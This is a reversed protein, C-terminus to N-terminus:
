VNNLIDGHLDVKKEFPLDLKKLFEGTGSFTLNQFNDGSLAVPCIEGTLQYPVENRRRLMECDSHFIHSIKSWLNKGEYTECESGSFGDRCRCIFAPNCEFTM